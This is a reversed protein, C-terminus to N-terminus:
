YIKLIEKKKQLVRVLKIMILRTSYCLISGDLAIQNLFLGFYGWLLLHIIFFSYNKFFLSQRYYPKYSFIASYHIGRLHSIIESWHFSTNILCSNHKIFWKMIWKNQRPKESCKIKQNQFIQTLSKIKINKDKIHYIKSTFSLEFNQGINQQQYTM